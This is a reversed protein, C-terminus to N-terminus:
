VTPIDQYNEGVYSCVATVATFREATLAADWKEAAGDLPLEGPFGLQGARLGFQKVEALTERANEKAWFMLGIELEELGLMQTDRRKPISIGETILGVRGGASIAGSSM